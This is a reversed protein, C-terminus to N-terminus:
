MNSVSFNPPPVGLASKKSHQSYTSKGGGTRKTYTSKFGEEIGLLGHGHGDDSMRGRSGLQEPDEKAFADKTNFNKRRISALQPYLSLVVEEFRFIFLSSKAIFLYADEDLNKKIDDLRLLKKEAEETEM